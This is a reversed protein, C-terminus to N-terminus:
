RPSDPDALEAWVIKGRAFRRVGWRSAVRRVMRLGRGDPRTYDDTEVLEPLERSTDSVEIVVSAGHRSIRLEGGDDTHKLVNEVLETTVILADMCRDHLHWNALAAEVFRRATATAATDAPIRLCVDTPM